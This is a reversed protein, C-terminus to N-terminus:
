CGDLDADAIIRMQEVAHRIIRSIQMQSVGVVAGIEAQTMDDTFRMRLVARDRPSVHRALRDLLVRQEAQAYGDEHSGLRDGITGGDSDDPGSSAGDLSLASVGQRAQLGELVDEEDLDEFEATLERVTPARNHVAMFRKTAGDIRLVREQLERPPRVAWIRDRFYRKIEGTITPVAFSSFALGRTPDFRDIANILGVAAIQTLDELLQPDATYRRALKAALPMFRDVLEDRQRHDRTRHYRELLLRDRRRRDAVDPPPSKRYSPSASPTPLARGPAASPSDVVAARM